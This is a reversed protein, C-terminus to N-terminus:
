YAMAMFVITDGSTTTGSITCTTTSTATQPLLIPAAASIDVAHCAWGNTATLGTAGNMTIVVTCTGTTGSAFQGASAGGVTTGASCGSITFKTGTSQFADAQWALNTALKATAGAVGLQLTVPVSTSASQLALGAIFAQVTSVGLVGASTLYAETSYAGGNISSAFVLESTPNTTGQVPLVYTCWDVAQSAATSTTKWGQGEQHICPSIQQAGSAAATTNVAEIADNLSTGLGTQTFTFQGPATRTVGSANQLVSGDGYLVANTAGGSITTSNITLGGGTSVCSWSHTSTNYLDAGTTCTPMVVATPSASTSENMVLSDQAQAALGTLPLGTM